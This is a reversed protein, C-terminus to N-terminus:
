AATVDRLEWGTGALLRLRHKLVTGSIRSVVVLKVRLHDQDGTVIAEPDIAGLSADIEDPDPQMARWQEFLADGTLAAQLEAAFGAASQAHFALSPDSGRAKAGDPLTIYYRTAM